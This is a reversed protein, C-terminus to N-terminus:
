GIPIRDNQWDCECESLKFEIKRNADFAVANLTYDYDSVAAAAVRMWERRGDITTWALPTTDSVRLNRTEPDPFWKLLTREYLSFLIFVSVLISRAHTENLHPWAMQWERQTTSSMRHLSPSRVFDPCWNGKMAATAPQLPFWFKTIHYGRWFLSFCFFFSTRHEMSCRAVIWNALANCCHIRMHHLINWLSNKAGKKKKCFVWM